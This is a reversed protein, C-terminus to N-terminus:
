HCKTAVQYRAFDQFVVSYFAKVKSASLSRMEKGDILIDGDYEDYLGTLLKTITTKGAGNAGVFAYHKGTEIKLSLGDLIYREGAPYKFRVNQFELSGFALANSEPLDLAGVSQSLNVFASLDKMYENAQAIKETANQLSWGLRNIM